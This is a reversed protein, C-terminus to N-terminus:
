NIMLTFHFLVISALLHFGGEQNGWDVSNEVYGPTLKCPGRGKIKVKLNGM